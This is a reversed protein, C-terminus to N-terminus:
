IIYDLELQNEYNTIKHNVLMGALTQVLYLPDM